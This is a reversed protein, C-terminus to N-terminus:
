FFINKTGLRISCSLGGKPTEISNEFSEMFVDQAYKFFVKRKKLRLYLASKLRERRTKQLPICFIAQQWGSHGGKVLAIRLGHELSFIPFHFLRVFNSFIFFFHFFHFCENQSSKQNYSKQYVTELNSYNCLLTNQSLQPKSFAEM